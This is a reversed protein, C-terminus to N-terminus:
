TNHNSVCRLVGRLVVPLNTAEQIPQNVLPIRSCWPCVKSWNPCERKICRLYLFFLWFCTRSYTLAAQFSTILDSHSSTTWSKSLAWRAFFAPNTGKWVRRSSTFGALLPPLARMGCFYFDPCRRLVTGYHGLKNQARPYLTWCQSDVKQLVFTSLVEHEMSQLFILPKVGRQFALRVWLTNYAFRNALLMKSAQSRQWIEEQTFGKARVADSVNNTGWVLVMHILGLRMFLWFVSSMMLYDELVYKERRYWRLTSRFVITIFALYSM